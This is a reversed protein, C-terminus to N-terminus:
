LMTVLAFAHAVATYRLNPGMPCFKVTETVCTHTLLGPAAALTDRLRRSSLVRSAPPPLRALRLWVSAALWAKSRMCMSKQWLTFCKLVCRPSCCCCCFRAYPFSDLLVRKLRESDAESKTVVPIEISYPDINPTAGSSVAGRRRAARAADVPVDLAAFGEDDSETDFDSDLGDPGTARLFILRSCMFCTLFTM